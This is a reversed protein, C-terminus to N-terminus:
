KVSTSTVPSSSGSTGKGGGSSSSGSTNVRVKTTVNGGKSGSYGSSFSSGQDNLGSKNTFWDFSTNKRKTPYLSSENPTVVDYNSNKTQITNIKKAGAVDNIVNIQINNQQLLRIVSNLEQDNSASKPAKEPTVTSHNALRQRNTINRNSNAAITQNELWRKRYIAARPDYQISNPDFFTVQSNRPINWKEGIWNQPNNMLNQWVFFRNNYLEWHSNWGYRRMSNVNFYKLYWTPSQRSVYNLYQEALDNQTRFLRRIGAPEEFVRVPIELQYRSFPHYTNLLEQQSGCSVMLWVIYLPVLKKIM